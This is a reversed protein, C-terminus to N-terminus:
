LRGKLKESGDMVFIFLNSRVFDEIRKFFNKKIHLELKRGYLEEDTILIKIYRPCRLFVNSLEIIEPLIEDENLLSIEDSENVYLVCICAVGKIIVKGALPKYETDCIKIDNKLM